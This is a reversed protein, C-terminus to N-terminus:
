ILEVSREALLLLQSSQRTFPAGNFGSWAQRVVMGSAALMQQLETLTYRRIDFSRQDRQGDSEILIARVQARGRLPDFGNELLLVGGDALERWDRAQLQPLYGDRSHTDLLLRGGPQLVGAVGNLVAQDQDDSELYGFADYMNIVAAFPGAPPRRMDGEVWVVTVEARDAAERAMALYRSSLDLGTVSYGRGALEIAHRGHGCCLDLITAGAPLQLAREIFNVEGMIRGEDGASSAGRQFWVDYYFRDFTSRYWPESM